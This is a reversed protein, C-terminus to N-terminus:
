KPGNDVAQRIVRLADPYESMKALQAEILLEASKERLELAYANLLEQAYELDDEPVKTEWDKLVAPSAHLLFELNSRDRNNM